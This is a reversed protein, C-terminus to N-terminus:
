FAGKMEIADLKRLMEFKNKLLEEDTMKKVNKSEKEIDVNNIDKFGDWTDTNVDLRSTDKAIDFTPKNQFSDKNIYEDDSIGINDLKSVDNLEKELKNETSNLNNSSSSNKIKDNMLLEIGDGLNTNISNDNNGDISISKETNEKPADLSIEHINLEEM